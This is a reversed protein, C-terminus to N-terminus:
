AGIEQENKATTPSAASEIAAALDIRADSSLDLGLADELVRVGVVGIPVGFLRALLRGLGHGQALTDRHQNQVYWHSGGGWVQTWGGVLRADFGAAARNKGFVLRMLALGLRGHELVSGLRVRTNLPDGAVALYPGPPEVHDWSRVLRDITLDVGHGALPSRRPLCHSGRNTTKGRAEAPTMGALGHAHATECWPCWFGFQTAEEGLPAVVAARFSRAATTM